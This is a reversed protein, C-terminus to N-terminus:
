KEQLYTHTNKTNCAVMQNLRSEHRRKIEFKRGYHADEIRRYDYGRRFGKEPEM